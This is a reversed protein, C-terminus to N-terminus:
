FSGQALWREVQPLRDNGWFSEGDVIIWPAGFIGRAIATECQDRLADKWHPDACAAIASQGDLGLGSVVDALWASDNVPVDGNFYASTVRRVFEGTLHPAQQKLWLCVRATNHTSVPFNDPLCLSLGAFRASREFDHRFYNAMVPPRMTLPGSGTERFVAGLLVPQWNVTRGYRAALQEVSQAAIYAYPSVFDFWFEIAQMM